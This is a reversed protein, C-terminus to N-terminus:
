KRRTIVSSIPASFVFPIGLRDIIRIAILPLAIGALVGLVIHISVSDIGLFKNLIVRVGSGALVHMLYIGM